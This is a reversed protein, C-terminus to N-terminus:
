RQGRLMAVLRPIWTELRPDGDHEGATRAEELADAAARRAEGGEPSGGEAVWSWALGLGVTWGEAMRTVDRESPVERLVELLLDVTEPSPGCAAVAAAAQLARGEELRCRVLDRLEQPGLRRALADHIAGAALGGPPEPM